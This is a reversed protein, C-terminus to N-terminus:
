SRLGAFFRNETTPKRNDPVSASVSARPDASKSDDVASQKRGVAEQKRGDASQAAAAAAPPKYGVPYIAEPDEGLGAYRKQMERRREWQHKVRAPGCITTWTGHAPANLDIWTVLRDWAEADLRVDHHGKLLMQVLRTTDAHFEWPPLLHLDSERTPTRVFKRLEYYSPTFRSALNYSNKNAMTPVPERDTLDPIPALSAPRPALPSPVASSPKGEPRTGRAEPRERGNHCGLCHRDLVPQVERRFDFGRAPGHWPTIESPPRQSAMTNSNPPASNQVEHCGVCSVPEGPMATFWSRMLQVAKGEADLPQVAV